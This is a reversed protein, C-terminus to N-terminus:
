QFIADEGAPFLPYQGFWEVLINEDVGMMVRKVEVLYAKDPFLSDCNM